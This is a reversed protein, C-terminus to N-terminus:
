NFSGKIKNYISDSDLSLAKLTESVTAHPIFVDDVATISINGSYGNEFARTAFRESVSGSRMGEEFFYIKKSNLVSEIAKDDIPKIKNLKIVKISIGEDKLKNVAVAVNAFQRGYTVVLIKANKDGYIVFPANESKYDEPLLPQKGRPYRVAVVGEDQYIANKLDFELEKFTTPSYITVNPISSLFSVDFLGQHTEGDEGVVGARDVALVLKLNSIAADHLIQDYARQLFTSYVAFVPVFGSISLGASFTVAHQEAIGVDYFRNKFEKKFPELGTSECMAATIGCIRNDEKALSLLTEGFQSSFCKESGIREGTDVDFSSVGHFANPVKEAFSYGKGKMTNVHLLVPRRMTKAVNLIAELKEIDHGDVPGLYDFGMDEFITSRYFISKVASKIKYICTRLPKGIIPINTLVKDTTSKFKFYRPRTRILALYRSMAGVNKSISMKNDNLIVILKDHSRGANNLAEYSLGGSLAGDGIICIVHGDQRSITKAQSMGFGASISTSSHGAVFSDHESESPKPFGSIGDKTRLTHFENLRDTIIKHTYCQHGVDFVIKDQPSKFCRHIAVTLEVVGLNSALHGGNKSVTSIMLQRISKCLQELEEKTMNKIDDPLNIKNLLSCDM